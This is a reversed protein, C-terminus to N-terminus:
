VSELTFRLDLQRTGAPGIREAPIEGDCFSRLSDRLAEQDESLQFDM